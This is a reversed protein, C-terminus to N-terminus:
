QSSIPYAADITAVIIFSRSHGQTATERNTLVTQKPPAYMTILRHVKACPNVKITLYAVCFDIDDADRAIEATVKMTMVDTM